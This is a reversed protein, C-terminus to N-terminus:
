TDAWMRLLNHYVGTLATTAAGEGHQQRLSLLNMDLEYLLRRQEDSRVMSEIWFFCALRHGRTVPKVQHLSTGPYLVLHGAPLKVSQEGYTDAICLEGGDYDQPDSLFLTCSIDTRVRQGGGALTGPIYRVASDIHNGYANSPGGYRNLRPPFIRKPLTASFFAPKRELGQLVMERIARAPASDHPLQENNKVQRAQEGAGPKGDEWAVGHLLKRVEALEEATLVDEITLLM